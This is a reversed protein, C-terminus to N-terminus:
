YLSLWLYSTYISFIHLRSGFIDRRSGFIDRFVLKKRETKEHKQHYCFFALSQSFNWFLTTRVTPHLPSWLHQLYSTSHVSPEELSRGVHGPPKRLPYSQVQCRHSTETRTNTGTCVTNTRVRMAAEGGSTDYLFRCSQPNATAATLSSSGMYARLLICSSPECRPHRM